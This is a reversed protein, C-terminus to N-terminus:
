KEKYVKNLESNLNGLFKEYFGKIKDLYCSPNLMEVESILPKESPIIDVRSYNPNVSLIKFAQECLQLEEKSPFHEVYKTNPSLNTNFNGTYKNIAHSFKGGVFILSNEGLSYIEEILPQVLIKGNIKKYDEFEEANKIESLKLIGSGQEGFFKPKLVLDEISKKYNSFIIGALDKFLYEKNIELTPVVSVGKNQLDLLYQKSLNERIIKLENITQGSFDKLFNLFNLFNEKNEHIKGLQGIYILDVLDNLSRKEEILGSINGNKGEVRRSLVLNNDLDKWDFLITNGFNSFYDLMVKWDEWKVPFSINDRSNDVEAVLGLRLNNM